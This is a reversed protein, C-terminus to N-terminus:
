QGRFPTQKQYLALRKGVEDALETNGANRALNVAELALQVAKDFDGSEAYAAALTDLYAPNQAGDAQCARLAWQVAESGNRVKEDRDTAVVWALSNAAVAWDPKVELVQRYRASAERSRGTAWLAMGLNYIAEIHEPYIDLAKEFSRIAQEYQGLQLEAVGLNNHVNANEPQFELAKLFMRKAEAEKGQNQSIVGIQFYAEDCAPDLEIAKQYFGRAKEGQGTMFLGKGMAVHVKPDQPALELARPYLRTLVREMDLQSMARSGLVLLLDPDYCFDMLAEVWPDPAPHFRLCQNAKKLSQESEDKRGYQTHVSAMLRHADGFGPDAEVAQVLLEEAKAWNAEEIAIRSLGLLAYPDKPELELRRHYAESAKATDGLKFYTDALKLVGPSYDPAKDVSEQLMAIVSANEGREQHISAMLYPWRPNNKELEMALAYCALAEHFFHNAQYLMGLRGINSGLEKKDVEAQAPRVIGEQAEAIQNRLVESKNPIDPIPPLRSVAQQQWSDRLLLVLGAAAIIGLMGLIVVAPAKLRRHILARKFDKRANGPM